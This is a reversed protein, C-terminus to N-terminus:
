LCVTGFQILVVDDDCCEDEDEDEGVNVDGGTEDDVFDGDDEVGGSNACCICFICIAGSTM